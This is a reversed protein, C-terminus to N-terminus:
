ATFGSGYICRAPAECILAFDSYTRLEYGAKTEMDRFYQGKAVGGGVRDFTIDTSGIRKFKKLPIMFMDGNKVMPHAEIKLKGNAAYFELSDVGNVFKEKKYSSDLRRLSSADSALVNWQKPSIYVTLDEQLGRGVARVTSDMIKQFNLAGSITESNAKWLDYTSNNIGFLSGSTTLIKKLGVMEKGKAGYRYLYLGGGTYTAAALATCGTATGTVTIKKNVHDVSYITFISDSGSSILTSNDNAYFQVQMGKSGAWLGDSWEADSCTLTEQTASDTTHATLRALGSSGYLLQMEAARAHSEMMREIKLSLSNAFAQKDNIAASVAKYSITGSLLMETGEIEAEATELSVGSNLTFASGDTNYTIGQEDGVIVPFIYKRGLASAKEFPIAKLLKAYEPIVNVPGEGFIYKFLGNLQSVTTDAAM